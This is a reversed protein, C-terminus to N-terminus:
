HNYNYHQLNNRVTHNKNICAHRYFAIFDARELKQQKQSDWTKM